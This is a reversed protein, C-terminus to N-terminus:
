ARVKEAMARLTINEGIENQISAFFDETARNPDSVWAENCISPGNLIIVLAPLAFQNVANRAGVLSWELLQVAAHAWAKQNRTVMCVVDSFIYLFRPYLTMVATKCDMPKGHKGEILYRRGHRAWDKQHEAAAPETGLLGECDAFFQPFRSGFTSTDLHLNVEGTTSSCLSSDHHAGPVPAELNEFEDAKSSNLIL